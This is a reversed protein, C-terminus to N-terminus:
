RVRFFPVVLISKEYPVGGYNRSELGSEVRHPARSSQLIKGNKEVTQSHMPLLPWLLDQILQMPHSMLSRGISYM